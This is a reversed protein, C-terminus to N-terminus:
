RFLKFSNYYIINMILIQIIIGYSTMKEMPEQIILSFIDSAVVFTLGFVVGAIIAKMRLLMTLEDEVKDKAFAIFSLAIIWVDLLIPKLIEKQITIFQFYKISIGLITSGIVLGLGIIKFYSPLLNIPKNFFNNAKKM